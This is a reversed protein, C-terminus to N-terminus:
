TSRSPACKAKLAEVELGRSPDFIGTVEVLRGILDLIEDARLGHLLISGMGEGREDEEPSLFHTGTVDRTLEGILPHEESIRVAESIRGIVFVDLVRLAGLVRPEAAPERGTDSM